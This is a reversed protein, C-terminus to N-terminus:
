ALDGLKKIPRVASFNLYFKKKIEQSGKRAIFSQPKATLEL